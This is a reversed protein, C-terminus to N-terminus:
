CFDRSHTTLSGLWASLDQLRSAIVHLVGDEKQISGQVALLRAKVLERAQREVLYPWVVVNTQGTEDELTVFVVDNASVPRQRCIVLGATTIRTDNDLEWLEEARRIRRENLRDRLLALPHRGLTLGTTAYDAAINQGEGPRPLMVECETFRPTGFVPINKEVGAVQWYARHRDGSLSELANAAALFEMDKRDLQARTALDQVSNFLRQSRARTINGIGTSSLGKIMHLGLRLSPAEGAKKSTNDDGTFELTSDHESICVDVPLVRVGHKRADAVLQAPAYFGMPQSNLLACTFAAPHYCKLWSSAYALLAFSASHSEPFGYEGFGKIQNFIQQAFHEPYGRAKMGALLKEEFQDLGGKRKWSAMSRRLRDAEGASFGAAVMALQMVQEQFIPVGLTRSLVDRVAESPYTIAEEGNRRRLYPHVMDGQIPGPRIIAIEIVLDYYNRPKLRPLMSMQARSEIQFVGITDARRIMRYVAPDEPPIDALAITKRTYASVYGLAKRIASLMGLALIDIKLLGLAELDDKEWQIVTREAMAANEVPVLHSLSGESIVFGGVHQSLHRPFGLIQRVLIVLRKIMPNQLTFGNEQLQQQITELNHWWYISRALRDVQDLGLGIAKGVDRVASRPRYTIVTAALAARERGYKRYIYQIVEERREHEFDVDIDPPENREKSIFREFLLQMRDPDVETIGLCYCIASNAASGRGQCLIGQGRAYQVIDHVTLFYPAYAMEDVLALEHEVAKKVKDPVGRPWRRNMGQGALERLWSQATHGEPVLEGPYQYCLEDLSFRCREAIRITEELLARPYIKQLRRRSRLYREGNPFLAYGLQALPRGLRIATLTDQLARRGRDHMHVDGGACLPVDHTEGVAQLLKLQRHDDGTLLLEVAIWVQQPFCRVLWRLPEDNISQAHEIGTTGPLWLVFCGEPYHREVTQRTLRYSGKGAKRRAVTILHSLRGYSARDTALLVFRTGDELTFESGIILHLGHEKAAMHARVVGALSCEDTIALAHYRLRAARGVLEEPFSAGRLFSYNSICHLEAYLPLKREGSRHDRSCGMFTGGSIRM